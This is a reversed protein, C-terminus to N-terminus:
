KTGKVSNEPEATLRIALMMGLIYWIIRQFSMDQVLSFTGWVLLCNLLIFKQESLRVGQKFIYYLLMMPLPAILLLGVIGMETAIWLPVNHIVKAQYHHLFGGLGSGFIPYNTFLEWAQMWNTGRLVDSENNGIIKSTYTGRDPAYTGFRYAIIPFAKVGTITKMLLPMLLGWLIMVAGTVMVSPLLKGINIYGMIYYWILLLPLLLIVVRSQTLVCAVILGAILLNNRDFWYKAQKQRALLFCLLLMAMLAFANRNVMFGSIDYWWQLIHRVDYDIFYALLLQAIVTLMLASALLTIGYWVGKDGLLRGIAAGSMVYGFLIIIGTMRNVGAWQSSGFSIFGVLWGYFLMVVALILALGFGREAWLATRQKDLLWFVFFTFGMLFAIPDAMNLTVENVSTPLRLQFPLLASLLFVGLMLLMKQNFAPVKHKSIVAPKNDNEPKDSQRKTLFFVLGFHLFLVLFLLVSLVGSLVLATSLSLGLQSFVAVASLERIGLGSFSIPITTALIVLALSSALVFIPVDPFFYVGLILFGILSSLHIIITLLSTSLFGIQRIVRIAEIMKAREDASCFYKFLLTLTLIVSVGLVTFYILQAHNISFTGQRGLSTIIVLGLLVVSSIIKEFITISVYLHGKDTKGRGHNVRGAIQALSPILFMSYLLSYINIKHNQWFPLDIGFKASVDHFRWSSLLLNGFLFVSSFLITILGEHSTLLSSL